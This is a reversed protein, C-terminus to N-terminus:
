HATLQNHPNSSDQIYSLCQKKSTAIKQGDQAYCNCGNNTNMCGVIAGVVKNQLQHLTVKIQENEIRAKQESDPTVPAVTVEEKPQLFQKIQTGLLSYIAAVIALGLVMNIVIQKM